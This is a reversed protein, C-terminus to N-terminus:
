KGIKIHLNPYQGYVVIGAHYMTPPHGQVEEYAFNREGREAPVFLNKGGIARGNAIVFAKVRYEGETLSTTGFGPSRLEYVEPPRYGDTGRPPIWHIEVRVTVDSENAVVVDEGLLNPGLIAKCGAFPLAAIFLLVLVWRSSMTM